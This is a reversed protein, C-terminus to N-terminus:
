TATKREKDYIRKKVKLFTSMNLSLYVGIIFVEYASLLELISFSLFFRDIQVFYPDALSNVAPTPYTRHTEKYM